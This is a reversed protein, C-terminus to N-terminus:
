EFIYALNKDQFFGSVVNKLKSLQSLYRKIITRLQDPGSVTARGSKHNKLWNWVWEDTNILLHLEAHRFLPCAATADMDKTGALIIGSQPGAPLLGYGFRSQLYILLVYILL